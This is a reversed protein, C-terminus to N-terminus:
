KFLVMQPFWKANSLCQVTDMQAQAVLIVDGETQFPNERELVAKQAVHYNIGNVNENGYIFNNEFIDRSWENM